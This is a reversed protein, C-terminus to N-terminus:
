QLESNIKKLIFKVFIERFISKEKSNSSKTEIISNDKNIDDSQVQIPIAMMSGFGSKSSRHLDNSKLNQMEAQSYSKKEVNQPMQVFLEDFNKSLHFESNQDFFKRMMAPNMTKYNIKKSSVTAIQKSSKPTSRLFNEYPRDNFFNSSSNEVEGYRKLNFFFILSM